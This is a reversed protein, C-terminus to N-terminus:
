GRMWYAGKYQVPVGVPRSPVHFVVVRGDPHTIEEADVRVHLRDLLGAQTRQLDPFAITGVVCRPQKDTVGLVMKGGRENALAVCYEVLKEFHFNSKAEKFELHEDERARMWTRLEDVRDIM